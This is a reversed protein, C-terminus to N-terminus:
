PGAHLLLMIQVTHTDIWHDAGRRRSELDYYLRVTVSPGTRLDLGAAVDNMVLRGEDSDFRVEEGVWPVLWRPGGTFAVRLANRYRYFGPDSHWENGHRDSLAFPGLAAKLAVDLVLLHKTTHASGFGDVHAYYAQLGLWAAPALRAGAYGKLFVLGADRFRQETELFVRPATALPGLAYDADLKLRLEPSADEARAGPAHGLASLLAAAALAHLARM